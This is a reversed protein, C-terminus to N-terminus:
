RKALLGRQVFWYWGALLGLGGGATEQPIYRHAMQQLVTQDVIQAQETWQFGTSPNSALVVILSGGEAVEVQRSIHQAQTFEENSVALSVQKPIAPSCAGLASLLVAVAVILVPKARM